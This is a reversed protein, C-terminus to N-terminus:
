KSFQDPSYNPHPPRPIDKWWTSYKALWEFNELIYENNELRRRRMVFPKIAAWRARILHGAADVILSADLVERRALTAITEMLQSVLNNARADASGPYHALFEEDTPYRENVTTLQDFAQLLEPATLRDFAELIALANREHAMERAQRQMLVATVVVTAFAVLLSVIPVITDFSTM